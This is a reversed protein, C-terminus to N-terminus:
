ASANAARSPPVRCPCVAGISACFRTLRPLASDASPQVGSLKRTAARSFPCMTSRAAASLGLEGRHGDIGLPPEGERGGDETGEVHAGAVLDEGPDDDVGLFEVQEGDGM